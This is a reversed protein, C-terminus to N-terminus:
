GGRRNEEFMAAPMPYDLRWVIKIPREDEYSVISGPGLYTFPVTVGNRKKQGRAFLLITYGNENHHIITQGGPSNQATSSQSEWHMLDRSIPYDAYMTTPSFEHETKQYTILFAYTKNEQKHLVGVGMVSGSKFTSIGLAAKIDEFGYQAHLELNCPFPLIPIRGDIQSENEAWELVEELDNLVSKNKSLREFSERITSINIKSGAKAWLKYHIQLASDAADSLAGEIDADTLKKIVVRLRKIEKIGSTQAVRVLANRLKLIDTDDPMPMLNARAKWESWTEKVLIEEPEYKHYKIFNIFSLNQSTEQEFTKLYEPISDHLKNLNSRINSLVHERAIRDLQISCGAPLHPFDFKVEKDIPLRKLPLLAKLKLDIRYRRHVQGVFDLVTLCDKEPAHRLGRGLQQLFITLSDTPRLFLVTNIDQIDLGENFVDVAFIFKTMGHRFEDLIQSRDDQRTKRSICASSIGKSNFMKSMFEAHNVSVCFGLGKVSSLDPEYRHLAEMIADLRQLALGHSGTYVNELAKADYKGSKWFKDADLSVPDAIGFYHFPCLLKEDLAEPLRIEAAFRQNFDASVSKGDMREPTATLGLLIKPNFSDFIPRYSSAPGHHVEDIIIFDYYDKGVQEWLRKTTLMKVSCFLQDYRTAEHHGVLLQGFDNIRLINRFVAISQELIEQRHAVFLLRAQKNKSRFYREFDFAAVVTKGTGTAAIILNKWNNHNRREAELNDLIREQFPHPKIDFFVTTDPYQSSKGRKIAERLQQPNGPDFPIFEQSNWYTEFEATFKDMIHAMDQATVKITWELGSTIAHRSLNASGIYATSFGSTRYFHYAKAHLRTVDTNYSVRVEINPMKALWEIATADSAGMYSTTIVRVPVNRSRLEEFSAMLLRLGSWKIFSILMDVKDASIMEKQLEHVLQPDHSSGTFLSSEVISTEPRPLGKAAYHAPTIEALLPKETQIIEHTQLYATKDGRAALSIIENCMKRRAAPDKEQKLTKEIIKM